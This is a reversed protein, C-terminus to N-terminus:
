VWFRRMKEQAVLFDSELAAVARLEFAPELFVHLEIEMFVPVPSNREEEPRKRTSNFVCRFPGSISSTMSLSEMILPMAAMVGQM